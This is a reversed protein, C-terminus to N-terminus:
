KGYLNNLWRKFSDFIIKNKEKDSYDKAWICSYNVKRVDDNKQLILKLNEEPLFNNYKEDILTSINWYRSIYSSDKGSYKDSLYYYPNYENLNKKNEIKNNKDKYFNAYEKFSNIKVTNTNEDYLIWRNKVNLSEVYDKANSYIINKEVNTYPFITNKLFENISKEIESIMYSYYPGSSYFNQVNDDLYLLTGDESKFKMKNIYEAYELAEEGIKKQKESDKTDIYQENSWAYSKKSIELNNIPSVCATGNVSDSMGKGEDNTMIAGIALLKSSYLESDGSAGLIASKTGGGNIGYAIIKEVNGPLIRNNFRCFRVLAKLDTIGDIIANSYEEDSEVKKNEKLGRMGPWIYIYGENIYDVIDEYNYKEHVEQEISEKSQISIIIPATKANYGAKRGKTNIEYKYTGNSDKKGILYEGPVYVDFKQNKESLQKACYPVGLQYYVNNISDYKWSSEDLILNIKSSSVPTNKKSFYSTFYTMCFLLIIIITINLIKLVNYNKM